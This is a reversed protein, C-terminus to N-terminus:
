AKARKRGRKKKAIFYIAWLIFSEPALPFHTITTGLTRAKIFRGFSHTFLLLQSFLVCLFFSECQERKRWYKENIKRLGRKRRKENLHATAADDRWFLKMVFEFKDTFYQVIHVINEMMWEVFMSHSFPLLSIYLTSFLLSRVFFFNKKKLKIFSTRSFALKLRSFRSLAQWFREIKAFLKHYIHGFAQWYLITNLHGIRQSSISAIGVAVHYSSRHVCLM